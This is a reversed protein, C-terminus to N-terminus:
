PRRPKFAAPVRLRAPTRAAIGRAVGRRAAAAAAAHAGLTPRAGALALPRVQSVLQQLFEQSHSFVAYHGAGAIAVFTKAPAQIADVYHRALSAPATCDRAGQFIFIPVRFAGQLRRPSLELEEKDLQQASLTQGELWDNVDQLTYGPAALALGVGATLFADAAGGECARLWRDFLPGAATGLAYPPTRGHAAPGAGSQRSFCAGHRASGSLGRTRGGGPRRDPVAGLASNMDMLKAAVFALGTLIVLGVLNIELWKDARM